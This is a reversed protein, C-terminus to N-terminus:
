TCNNAVSQRISLEQSFAVKSTYLNISYKIDPWQSKPFLFLVISAIISLLSYNGQFEMVYSAM